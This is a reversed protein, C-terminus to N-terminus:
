KGGFDMKQRKYKKPVDFESSDIKKNEASLIKTEQTVNGGAGYTRTMVPLGGTKGMQSLWSNPQMRQTMMAGMPGQTMTKMFQDFMSGMGEFAKAIEESGKLNSWSTVWLEQQLSENKYVEYKRTPYGNIDLKENTERVEFAAETAGEGMGQPIRKGMMKKMMERQAPPVNALMNQFEAMAAEMKSSIAQIQEEDIATYNRRKHDIMLLEKKSGLFIMESAQGKNDQSGSM